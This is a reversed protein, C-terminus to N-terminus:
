QLRTIAYHAENPSAKFMESRIKNWFEMVYNPDNELAKKNAVKEIPYKTWLGDDSRFTPIGSPASIGAGTIFIITNESADVVVGGVFM